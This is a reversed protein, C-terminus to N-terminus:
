SDNRNKLLVWEENPMDCSDLSWGKLNNLNLRQSYKTLLKECNIDQAMFRVPLKKDINSNVSDLQELTHIGINLCKLNKYKSLMMIDSDNILTGNTYIYINKDLSLRDLLSFLNDKHLFPEGGTICINKYLSFDIESFSKKNFQSNFEEKKNCCYPCNMNCDLFM